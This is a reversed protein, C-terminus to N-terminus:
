VHDARQYRVRKKKTKGPSDKRSPPSAPVLAMTEKTDLDGSGRKMLDIQYHPCHCHGWFFPGQWRAPVTANVLPLCCCPRLGWCTSAVALLLQLLALLELLVLWQLALVVASGSHSAAAYALACAM